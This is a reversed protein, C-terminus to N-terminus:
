GKVQPPLYHTKAETLESKGRIHYDDPRRRQHGREVHGDLRHIGRDLGSSQYLPIMRWLFSSLPKKVSLGHGKLQSGRSNLHRGMFEDQRVLEIPFLVGTNFTMPVRTNAITAMVDNVALHVIKCEPILVRKVKDKPRKPCQPSKHGVEQCSFCVIPKVDVPNVNTSPQKHTDLQRSRCKRGVHGM